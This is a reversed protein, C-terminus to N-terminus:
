VLAKPRKVSPLKVLGAVNVLVLGQRVADDLASRLTARIRQRNADSGPIEAM